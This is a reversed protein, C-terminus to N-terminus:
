LSHNNSIMAKAYEIELVVEVEESAVLDELYIESSIEWIWMLDVEALDDAVLVAQELHMVISIVAMDVRAICIM